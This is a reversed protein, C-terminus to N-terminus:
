MQESPMAAALRALVNQNNDHLIRLTVSLILQNILCESWIHSTYGTFQISSLTFIHSITFAHTANICTGYLGTEILLVSGWRIPLM